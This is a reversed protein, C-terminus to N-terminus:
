SSGLMRRMEPSSLSWCFVGLADLLHRQLGGRVRSAIPVFSPVLQVARAHAREERDKTRAARQVKTGKRSPREDLLQSRWYSPTASALVLRRDELFSALVGFALAIMVGTQMNPPFSMAEAAVLHVDTGMTFEGLWSHLERARRMRDDCLRVDDDGVRQESTFADARFTEHRSRGNTQTIVAGCTALAIDLSLVNIM